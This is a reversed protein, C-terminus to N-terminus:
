RGLATDVFQIAHPYRTSDTPSGPWATAKMTTSGYSTSYVADSSAPWSSSPRASPSETPQTDTPADREREYRPSRCRRGSAPHEAHLLAAVRRHDRNALFWADTVGPEPLAIDTREGTQTDCRWMASAGGRNQIVTIGSGASVVAADFCEGTRPVRMTEGTDLDHRVIAAFEREANSSAYFARDSVWAPPGVLAADGPHPLPIQAEGTGVDVLVLDVDLQRPGPRVVSVFRGAPSFGSAPHYWCDGAHLLRHGARELDYLWLDFDVGNSRNSVYALTRRDPSIAAFEHGFRPDTTLPQLRDFGRVTAARADDLDILYLQYRENGGEDIALVAWRTDPLYHASAVPEPLATLEVLTGSAFEHLQLTGSVDSRM